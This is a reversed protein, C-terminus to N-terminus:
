RNGSLLAFIAFFYYGPVGWIITYLLYFLFTTISDQKRFFLITNFITIIILFGLIFNLPEYNFFKIYACAISRIAEFFYLIFNYHENRSIYYYLSLGLFFLSQIFLVNRIYYKIKNM